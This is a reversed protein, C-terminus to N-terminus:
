WNWCIFRIRHLTMTHVMHVLLLYGGGEGGTGVVVVVVTGGVNSTIRAIILGGGVRFGGGGQLNNYGGTGGGGGGGIVFVNVNSVILGLLTHMYDMYTFTTSYRSNNSYRLVVVVLTFILLQIM